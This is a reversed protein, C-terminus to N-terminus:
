GNANTFDIVIPDGYAEGNVYLIYTQVGTGTLEVEIQTLTLDEITIPDLVDVDGQKLRLEYAATMGTPLQIYFKKTVAAPVTPETETPEPETTPPETVEPETTPPVTTEEPGKSIELIILTTVDVKTNKKESQSIVTDKEENSEVPRCEVNEFGSAKLLKIATEVDQGVVNPM